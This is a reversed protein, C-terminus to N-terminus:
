YYQLCLSISRTSKNNSSCSLCTFSIEADSSYRMDFVLQLACTTPTNLTSCTKMFSLFKQAATLNSVTLLSYLKEYFSPYDLGYDRILVFLADLAMISIIGRQETLSSLHDVLQLPRTMWPIINSGLDELIRFELHEPLKRSLLFSLWADTFTKRLRKRFIDEGIPITVQISVKEELRNSNSVWKPLLQAGKSLLEYIRYLIFLEDQDIAETAEESSQLSSIAELTYLAVDGYVSFVNEVFHNWDKRGEKKEVSAVLIRKVQREFLPRWANFQASITTGILLACQAVQEENSVCLEELYICLKTTQRKLWKEVQQLSKETRSETEQSFLNVQFTQFILPLIRRVAHLCKVRVSTPIQINPKLCHFLGTIYKCNDACNKSIDVELQIIKKLLPETYETM